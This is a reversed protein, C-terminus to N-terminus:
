DLDWGRAVLEAVTLSSGPDGKFKEVRVPGAGDRTFQVGYPGAWQNLIEPHHSILIVQGDHDDAMEEISMLWPQIERLSIFNDPEDIIVTGGRAVVFHTIAYLCILCRQGDSLESFPIRIPKGDKCFEACFIEVSEGADEFQFQDFGKLGERLDQLFKSNEKPHAQALHRYWSPFNTLDAIPLPQVNDTESKMAFPNIRLCYLTSLWAQFERIVHFRPDEGFKALASLGRDSPFLTHPSADTPNFDIGGGEFKRLPRGNLHLAEAQIRPRPPDGAEEIVLTYRYEGATLRAEVSIVQERQNMWRTRDNVSFVKEVRKGGVVGDVVCRVADMLSTKGTGNRGLILQKRGPKWEFKEFCRFNDIYLRTLM